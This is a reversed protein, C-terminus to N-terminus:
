SRQNYFEIIGNAVAFAMQSQYDSDKLKELERSNSLFGCEVIIAPVAANKLLYTSDSGQKIVRTNDPQILTKISNQICNALKRAESYNKTYFVQAGSAASTTFKNLHISVFIADTNDKMLQLRNNLDSKKRKPITATDDDETGMDTDRTMIVNFGNFRLLSCVTQSISLNIDKETTGDYAQAGGDFGGHGADIIVTKVSDVVSSVGIVETKVYSFAAVLCIIGLLVIQPTIRKLLNM